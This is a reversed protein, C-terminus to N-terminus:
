VIRYSTGPGQGQKQILNKSMLNNLTRITKSKEFGLAEDLEKRSLEKERKLINYVEVEDKVLGAHDNRIVPLIIAISNEGVHFDPKSLSNAYASNIRAIGTGFKEIIGLRYFVGAVIPNRLVSINNHLYENKSLGEPLGGPSKIEVKQDHMAIQIYSKVDWVRHIMANALAERFAKQPIREKKEREYGEIDEYQYYQEFIALARSYQLLLSKNSITERYLIQDIDEGFRLIDVGSFDIKNEDALLEGAINFDGNEDCLNLTRLIDLDARKIGVKEKLEHKLVDFNLKQTSAKRKEHDMNIGDLALRTLESRSVEVTAADSRKYAKGNAYYPTDSGKKVRLIIIRKGEREEVDITFTPIPDLSDNIMNEIKLCENKVDDLGMINGDDAIGFLIEGENYNAYASVTKLFRKSVMEKLELNYREKEIM